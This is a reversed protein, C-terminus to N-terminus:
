INEADEKPKRNMWYPASIFWGVTGVLMLTKNLTMPVLGYFVLFAPILNLLLCIVSILILLKRM